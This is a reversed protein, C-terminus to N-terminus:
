RLFSLFYGGEEFDAAIAALSDNHRLNVWVQGADVAQEARALAMLHRGKQDVDLVGLTEGVQKVCHLAVRCAMLLAQPRLPEPRRHIRLPDVGACNRAARGIAQVFENGAGPEAFIFRLIM